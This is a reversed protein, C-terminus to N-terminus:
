LIVVSVVLKPEENKFCEELAMYDINFDKKFDIKNLKVNGKDKVYDLSRLTANHEFVSYYINDGKNWEIGKIITNIAITASSTFIVKKQNNLNFFKHLKDRTDEIMELAKTSKKYAGRGANVGNKRYFADMAKYVSQPKPFTTAANDFYIMIDM